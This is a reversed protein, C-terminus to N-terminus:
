HKASVKKVPIDDFSKLLHWILSFCKKWDDDDDDEETDLITEPELSNNRMM